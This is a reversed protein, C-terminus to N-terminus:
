GPESLTPALQEPVYIAATATQGVLWDHFSRDPSVRIQVDFVFGIAPAAASWTVLLPKGAKGTSPVTVPVAVSSTAHTARDTVSYTGASNFTYQFSSGAALTGSDFLAMGSRDKLRHSDGSVITWGITDGQIAPATTPDFGTESVQIECISEAITATLTNGVAWGAGPTWATIGSLYTYSEGQASSVRRWQKGDYHEILGQYDSTGSPYHYGAAWIDGPGAAAIGLLVNGEGSYDEGPLATFGSEDGRLLLTKGQTGDYYFGAAWILGDSTAVVAALSSPQGPNPSPVVTWTTGDFHLILTSSPSGSAISQYGAAWIDGSGAAAVGNLANPGDGVNPTPVISWSNGDWNWWLGTITAVL